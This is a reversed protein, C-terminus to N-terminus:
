ETNSRKISPTSANQQTEELHEVAKHRLV